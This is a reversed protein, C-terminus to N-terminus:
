VKKVENIVYRGYKGKLEIDLDINLYSRTKEADKLISLTTDDNFDIGVKEFKYAFGNKDHFIFHVNAYNIVQGSEKDTFTGKQANVVSCKYIM